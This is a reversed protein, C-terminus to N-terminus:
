KLKSLPIQYEGEGVRKGGLKAVGDAVMTKASNLSANTYDGDLLFQAAEQSTFKGGRKSRALEALGTRFPTLPRAGIGKTARPLDVLVIETSSSDVPSKSKKGNVTQVAPASKMSRISSRTTEFAAIKATSKEITAREKEIMQDLQTLFQEQMKPYKEKEVKAGV